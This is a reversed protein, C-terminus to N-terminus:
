SSSASRFLCVVANRFSLTDEKRDLFFKNMETGLLMTGQMIVLNHYFKGGHKAKATKLYQYPDKVYALLNGVVPIGTKYQPIGHPPKKGSILKLFFLSAIVVIGLSLVAPSTWSGSNGYDPKHKPVAMIAFSYPIKWLSPKISLKLWLHTSNPPQAQRSKSANWGHSSTWLRPSFM